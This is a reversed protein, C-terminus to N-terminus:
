ELLFPLLNLSNRLRAGLGEFDIGSTFNHADVGVLKAFESDGLVEEPSLVGDNDYDFSHLISSSTIPLLLIAALNIGAIDEVNVEAQQQEVVWYKIIVRQFRSIEALSLQGDGTIDMFSWVNDFACKVDHDCTTEITYRLNEIAQVDDGYIFNDLIDQQPDEHAAAFKLAAMLAVMFAASTLIRRNQWM